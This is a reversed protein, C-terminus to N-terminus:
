IQSLAEKDLGTVYRNSKKCKRESEQNITQTRVKKGGFFYLLNIQFHNVYSVMYASKTCM